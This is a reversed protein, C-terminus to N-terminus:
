FYTLYVLLYEAMFSSSSCTNFVNKQFLLQHQHRRALMFYAASKGDSTWHYIFFPCPWHSHDMIGETSQHQKYVTGSMSMPERLSLPYYSFQPPCAPKDPFHDNFPLHAKQTRSVQGDEMLNTYHAQLIKPSYDCKYSVDHQMTKLMAQSKNGYNTTTACVCVCVCVSVVM